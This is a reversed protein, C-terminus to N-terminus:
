IEKECEGEAKAAASGIRKLDDLTTKLRWELADQGTLSVNELSDEIQQSLSEISMKLQKEKLKSLRIEEETRLTDNIHKLTLLIERYEADKIGGKDFLRRRLEAICAKKIKNM